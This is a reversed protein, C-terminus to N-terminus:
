EKEEEEDDEEEDKEDNYIKEKEEYGDKYWEIFNNISERFHNCEEIILRRNNSIPNSNMVQIQIKDIILKLKILTQFQKGNYHQQRRIIKFLNLKLENWYKFSIKYTELNIKNLRYVTLIYEEKKKNNLKNYETENLIKIKLLNPPSPTRRPSESKKRTPSSSRIRRPNKDERMKMTPSSSHNRRLFRNIYMQKMYPQKKDENIKWRPPSPTRRIPHERKIKLSPKDENMKWKPYNEPSGEMREMSSSSSSSSLGLRKYKASIEKKNKHNM